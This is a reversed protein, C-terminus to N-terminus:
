GAWVVGVAGDMELSSLWATGDADGTVDNAIELALAACGISADLAAWIAAVLGTDVCILGCIAAAVM